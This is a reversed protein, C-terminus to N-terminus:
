FEIEIPAEIIIKSIISEIKEKLLFIEENLQHIGLLKNRQLELELYNDITYNNHLIIKSYYFKTIQKMQSGDFKPIPIKCLNEKYLIPVIGLNRQAMQMYKGIKSTLFTYLYIQEETNEFKKIILTNQNSFIKEDNDIYIGNGVYRIGNLIITNKTIKTASKTHLYTKYALSRGDVNKPTIWQFFKDSKRESSYYYDKPTRGPVIENESLFYCGNKYSKILTDYEYYRKSYIITDLRNGIKMMSITPLRYNTKLAAKNRLENYFLKDIQNNKLEVEEEKNIMNQVLTSVYHKVLYPDKHNKKTPFPLKVDLLNKRKANKQTGGGSTLVTLYDTGYGHLFFAFVYYKDEDAMRLYSIGGNLIGNIDKNVLTTKGLSANRSVLVDGKKLKKSSISYVFPSIRKGQKQDIVCKSMTSITVLFYNSDFNLYNSVAIQEGVGEFAVLSSISKMNANPISIMKFESPHLSHCKNLVDSKKISVPKQLYHNM